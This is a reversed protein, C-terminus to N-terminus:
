VVVAAVARSINCSHQWNQSLDPHFPRGDLCFEEPTPGSSVALEPMARHRLNKEFLRSSYRGPQAIDPQMFGSKELM